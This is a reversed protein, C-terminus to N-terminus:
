SDGRGNEFKRAWCSFLAPFYEVEDVQSIREGIKKIAKGIASTCVGARGDIEAISNLYRRGLFWGLKRRDQTDRFISKRKIGLIMGQHLTGPAGVRMQRAM